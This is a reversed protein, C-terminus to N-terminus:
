FMTRKPQKLRHRCDYRHVFITQKDHASRSILTLRIINVQIRSIALTDLTIRLYMSGHAM